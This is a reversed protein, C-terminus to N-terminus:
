EYTITWHSSLNTQYWDSVLVFVNTINWITNRLHNVLKAQSLSSLDEVLLCLDLELIEELCIM